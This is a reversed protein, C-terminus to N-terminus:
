IISKIKAVVAKEDASLTEELKVIKAKLSSIHHVRGAGFGVALSIAIAIIM